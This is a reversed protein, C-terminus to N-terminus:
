PSHTPTTLAVDGLVGRLPSTEESFDASPTRVLPDERQVPALHRAVRVETSGAATWAQSLQKGQYPVELRATSCLAKTKHCARLHEASDPRPGM